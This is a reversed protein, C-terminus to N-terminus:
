ESVRWIYAKDDQGGTAVLDPQVPSWAVALVADAHLVGASLHDGPLQQPMRHQNSAHAHCAAVLQTGAHQQQRGKHAGAAAVFLLVSVVVVLGEQQQSSSM